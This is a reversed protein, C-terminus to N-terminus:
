DGQSIPRKTAIDDNILFLITGSVKDNDFSVHLIKEDKIIAKSSPSALFKNKLLPLIVSEEMGEELVLKGTIDNTYRKTQIISWPFKRDESEWSPEGGTKWPPKFSIEVIEEGQMQYTITRPISFQYEMWYDAYVEGEAGVVVSKSGQELIGTALVDGKKVTQHVRGVREGRELEFRTIVGGTRAVLNSPPGKKEEMKNSPPSLMPIVTLSTGIKKFRIWSLSPDNKMLHRRIEGEEPLLALPRLPVISAKELKEEIRDVVEPRDSDVTVTWLFFSCAFPIACAILFLPTLIIKKAGRDHQPGTVSFKFRFARRRKRLQALGKRDTRFTAVQNDISLSRIKTGKMALDTLFKSIDGKGTLKIHYWKDFM